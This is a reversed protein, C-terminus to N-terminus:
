RRTVISVIESAADPRAVRVVAERMRALRQRDCLLTDIKFALTPLNNCRVAVGAELFYDSNREEWGPIPNVIVLAVGRAFAECSTMGGAKGVLLDASALWREMETTYGIIRMPHRRDGAARLRRELAANKGCIVVIQVPHSVADVARVLSEVPGMGFGGASVVVTALDPDLGMQLRAERKGAPMAFRPDIPLGTVHITDPPIGLAALHAKMEEHGVFYWDVGRYLWMAHADFDTIVVGVPIDLLGRRRLYLLIDPPLFHTCLAVEPKRQELLRVLPRTNLRDLALRRKDYRWPHNMLRYIYGLVQPRHNALEVYLDAYVRRFLPTTYRLIEVHAAQVHRLRFASVLAEAAAMHGGGSAASLVMVGGTASRRDPM